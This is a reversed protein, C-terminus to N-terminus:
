SRAGISARARTTHDYPDLLILPRWLEFAMRDEGRIYGDPAHAVIAM